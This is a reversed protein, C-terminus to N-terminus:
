HESERKRAEGREQESERGKKSEKEKERRKDDWILMAIAWTVSSGLWIWLSSIIKDVTCLTYTQRISRRVTKIFSTGRHFRQSLSLESCIKSNICGWQSSSHFKHIRGKEERKGKGRTKGGRREEWIELNIPYFLGEEWVCQRFHTRKSPWTSMSLRHVGLHLSM